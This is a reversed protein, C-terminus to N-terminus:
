SSALIRPASPRFGLLRRRLDPDSRQYTRAMLRLTASLELKGDVFSTLDSAPMALFVEMFRGFADHDLHALVGAGYNFLVWRLRRDWTWLQARAFRAVEPIGARTKECIADALPGALRLCRALQYGSAPHTLGARAGFNVVNEQGPQPAGGMGILCREEGLESEISLGRASLRRLLRSRLSSFAVREPAVLVTEQLFHAPGERTAYLFSPPEESSSGSLDMFIMEGHELWDERLVAWLGYATQYRTDESANPSRGTAAICLRQNESTGTGESTLPEFRVGESHARELLLTQLRHTDLRVYSADLESSQGTRDIWHPRSYLHAVAPSYDAPLLGEFTGYSAPWPAFPEPARVTVGVGRRALEWAIALGAPGAGLVNVEGLEANGDMEQNFVTLTCQKYM